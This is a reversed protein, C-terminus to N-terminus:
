RGPCTRRFARLSVRKFVSSFRLRRSRGCFRRRPTRYEVEYVAKRARIFPKFFRCESYQFCQEVVAFDFSRALTRAQGPDNKLGVALGHDHGARALWRNFRLQDGATLPFGTANTYGDVNDPDIADFGKRRCADIRDRLIPALLDLRRIDLWREDPFGAIPKGLLERPFRSADARYPEYSGASFYCVVKRHRRHLRRISRRPTEVGDVDFVPARVSTDVRGSLQLQWPKTTPRPHWRAEAPAACTALLCAAILGCSRLAAGAAAAM